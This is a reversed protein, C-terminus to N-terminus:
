NKKLVVANKFVASHKVAAKVEDILVTSVSKLTACFIDNPVVIAIVKGDALCLPSGHRENKAPINCTIDFLGAVGTGAAINDIYGKQIKIDAGNKDATKEPCGVAMGPVLRSLDDRSAARFYIAGPLRNEVTLLAVDANQEKYSRYRPHMQITKVNLTEGGAIKIKIGDIRIGKSLAFRLKNINASNEHCFRRFQEISVAGSKAAADKILELTINELTAADM